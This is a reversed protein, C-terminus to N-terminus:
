SWAPPTYDALLTRTVEKQLDFERSAPVPLAVTRTNTTSWENLTSYAREELAKPKKAFIRGKRDILTFLDSFENAGESRGLVLYGHSRLSYHFIPM